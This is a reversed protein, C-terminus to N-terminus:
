AAPTRRVYRRLLAHLHASTRKLIKATWPTAVAAKWAKGKAVEPETLHYIAFYKQTAIGDGKFRRACLCGPVAALLPVHETNYWDNFEDEAAPEVNMAFFLLGGANPPAAQHGPLIQEGVFRGLKQMGHEVRKTWPSQNVGTFALYPASQLVDVSDLDYTAFAIKPDDAGIWREANIFGKVRLREPIHETDYWDNFEDEAVASYNFGAAMIGMKGTTATM